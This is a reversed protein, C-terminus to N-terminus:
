IHLRNRGSRQEINKQIGIVPLGLECLRHSIQLTGDEGEVFLCDFKLKKFNEITQKSYDQITVLGEKDFERYEFPHGKNTTGLITDGLPLIEKTNPICFM